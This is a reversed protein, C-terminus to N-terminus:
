PRTTAPSGQCYTPRSYSASGMRCGSRTPSPCPCSEAEGGDARITYLAPEEDGTRKSTFAISTGDPSWAPTNDTSEASTLARAAGTATDLLWLHKQSDNKALNYEQVAFVLRAGDPSLELAGPRKVAWLDDATIARKAGADGAAVLRLTCLVGVLCIRFPLNRM